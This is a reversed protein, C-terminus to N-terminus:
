SVDKLHLTGNPRWGHIHIAFGADRVAEVLPSDAIKRARASLNSASTTQVLLRESAKIALIDAFGFLDRKWCRNKVRMSVEVIECHYGEERLLALSRQMPSM